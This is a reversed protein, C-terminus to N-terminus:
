GLSRKIAAAAGSVGFGFVPTLNGPVLGLWWLWGTVLAALWIGVCYPCRVGRGANTKAPVKRRLKQFIAAPGEEEAIVDAVRSVALAAIIFLLWNM